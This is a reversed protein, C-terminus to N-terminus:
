PKRGKTLREGVLGVLLNAPIIFLIGILTLGGPTAAGALAGIVLTLVILGGVLRRM